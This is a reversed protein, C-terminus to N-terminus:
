YLVGIRRNGVAQALYEGARDFGRAISRESVVAAFRRHITTYNPYYQPLMHWQAGTNLIWLVADLIKRAPVPRRGPRIM